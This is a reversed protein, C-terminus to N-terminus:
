FVDSFMRRASWKSGLKKAFIKCMETYTYMRICRFHLPLPFDRFRIEGFCCGKICRPKQSLEFSAIGGCNATALFLECVWESWEDTKLCNWNIWTVILKEKARQPRNICLSDSDSRKVSSSKAHCQGMHHRQLAVPACHGICHCIARLMVCSCSNSCRPPIRKLTAQLLYLLVRTKAASKSLRRFNWCVGPVYGM